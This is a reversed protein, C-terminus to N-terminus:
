QEQLLQLHTAVTRRVTFAGGSGGGGVSGGSKTWLEEGDPNLDLLEASASDEIFGREVDEDLWGDTSLGISGFLWPPPSGQEVELGAVDLGVSDPLTKRRTIRRRMSKPLPRKRRMCTLM